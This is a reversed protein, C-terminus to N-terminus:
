GKASANLEDVAKQVEPAYKEVALSWANGYAVMMSIMYQQTNPIGLGSAPVAYKEVQAM